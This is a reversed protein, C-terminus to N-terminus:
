RTVARPPALRPARARGAPVLLIRRDGATFTFLGDVVGDDLGAMRRLMREFRDLSEVYAVFELGQGGTTVFPMSRHWMFANSDFNEQASRKVHASAPADDLEDNSELNRGMMADREAPNFRRFRNLGHVWRQMVVFSSGELGDGSAVLAAEAAAEGNPNETRRVLQSQPRYRHIRFLVPQRQVSELRVLCIQNAFAFPRDFRIQINRPDNRKCFGLAHVGNM